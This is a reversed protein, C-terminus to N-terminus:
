ELETLFLFTFDCLEKEQSGDQREMRHGAVKWNANRRKPVSFYHSKRFAGHYTWDQHGKTQFASERLKRGSERVTDELILNM